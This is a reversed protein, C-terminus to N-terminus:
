FPLYSCKTNRSVEQFCTYIRKNSLIPPLYLIKLSSCACYFFNYSTALNDLKKKGLFRIFHCFFWLWELSYFHHRKSVTFLSNSLNLTTVKDFFSTIIKCLFFLLSLHLILPIQIFDKHYKQVKFCLIYFRLELCCYYVVTCTHYTFQALHNETKRIFPELHLPILEFKHTDSSTPRNGKGKRCCAWTRMTLFPYSSALDVLSFATGLHDARVNFTHSSSSFELLSKIFWWGRSSQM